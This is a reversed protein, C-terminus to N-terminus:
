PAPPTPASQAPLTASKEMQKRVEFRFRTWNNERHVSLQGEAGSAAQAALALGIGVGESKGTYFPEFIKQELGEPIGPGSDLVDVFIAVPSDSLRLVVEGGPGCADTANQALSLLALQVHESDAVALSEPESTNNELSMRINQHQCQFSLLELVHSLITDMRGSVVNQSSGSALRLLGRIHSETLTLQRIAVELSARDDHQCRRSHLQIALRAGMIANRLQHALGAALQSMAAMRETSRIQQTKRQLDLAMQNISGALHGLEDDREIPLMEDFRLAALDAVRQQISRLRREFGAAILWSVTAAGILTFGGVVFPALIAERRIAARDAERVLVYLSKLQPSRMVEVTGCLWREGQITLPILIGLSGSSQSPKMLTQLQAAAEPSVTSASIRDNADIAVFEAGSLGRLQILIQDTIPFRASELTRIVQNLDDSLQKEARNASIWANSISLLVVTLAILLAFPILIQRRISSRM